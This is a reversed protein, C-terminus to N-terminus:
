VTVNKYMVSFKMIKCSDNIQNKANTGEHKGTLTLRSISLELRTTSRTVYNEGGFVCFAMCRVS